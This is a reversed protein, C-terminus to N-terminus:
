WERMYRSNGNIISIFNIEDRRIKFGTLLVQEGKIGNKFQWTKMKEGSYTLLSVTFDGPMDKLLTLTGEEIDIISPSLNHEYASTITFGDLSTILNRRIRLTPSYSTYNDKAVSKIRYYCVVQAPSITADTFEFTTSQDQQAGASSQIKGVAEYSIGNNSREVIYSAVNTNYTCGWELLVANDKNTATLKTFVPLKYNWKRCSINGITYTGSTELAEDYYSLRISDTLGDFIIEAAMDMSSPTLTDRGADTYELSHLEQKHSNFLTYFNDSINSISFKKLVGKSFGEIKIKDGGDIDLIQFSLNEVPKSFSIHTVIPHKSIDTTDNHGLRLGTITEEHLNNIGIVDPNVGTISCNLKSEGLWTNNLVPLITQLNNFNSLNNFRATYRQEMHPELPQVIRVTYDEVEGTVTTGTPYEIEERHIAAATRFRAFTVSTHLNVPLVWTLTITKGSDYLAAAKEYSDFNKNGDFDIWGRVPDGKEAGNIPINLVYTKELANIDPLFVTTISDTSLISNNVTFADEDDIGTTDDANTIINELARVSRDDDGRRNGFYPGESPSYHVASGYYIPADGIDGAQSVFNRKYLSFGLLSLVTLAAFFILILFLKKKM